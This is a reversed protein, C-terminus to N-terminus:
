VLRRHTQGTGRQPGRVEEAPSAPMQTLRRALGDIIARDNESLTGREVLFQAMARSRDKCWCQFAAILDPQEILGNQLALIGFLLSSDSEVASM